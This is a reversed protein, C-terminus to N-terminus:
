WKGNGMEGGPAARSARSEQGRALIAGIYCAAIVFLLVRFGTILSLYEGVGGLMAGLLNTGYDRPLSTSV